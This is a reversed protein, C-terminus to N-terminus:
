ENKLCFASLTKWSIEQDRDPKQRKKDDKLIIYLTDNSFRRLTKIKNAM